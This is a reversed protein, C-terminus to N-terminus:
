MWKLFLLNHTAVVVIPLRISTVETFVSITQFFDLYPKQKFRRAVHRAKYRDTSGFM